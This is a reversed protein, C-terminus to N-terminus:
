AAAYDYKRLEEEIEEMKIEAQEQDFDCAVREMDIITQRYEKLLDDQYQKMKM